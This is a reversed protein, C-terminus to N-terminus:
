YKFTERGERNRDTQDCDMATLGKYMMIGPVRLAENAKMSGTAVGGFAMTNEYPWRWTDSM